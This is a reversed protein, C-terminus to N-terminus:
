KRIFTDSTRNILEMYERRPLIERSIGQASEEPITGTNVLEEGARRAGKLIDNIKNSKMAFSHPRILKGSYRYGTNKCFAKLHETVPGFNDKEWLGCTSIFAFGPAKSWSPLPHRMHGERIEMYPSGLAVLRDMMCKLQGPVGDCYLPFSFVILDSEKLEPYLIEMSDNQICRNKLRFWCSLDGRCPNINLKQLYFTKVEAGEARMGSIFPSSIWSTLGKRMYPSASVVTTKM